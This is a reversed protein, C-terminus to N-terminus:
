KIYMASRQVGENIHQIEPEKELLRLIDALTFLCGDAYLREYIEKTMRYDEPTDLTLRLHSLDESNSINRSRFLQPHRYMYQTVHEREYADTAESESQALAAMTFVECDLGEPFSPPKNNYAFVAEGSEVVEIVRDILQPEKFPDDATIRIVVDGDTMGVSRAAAYYRNLVDDESGRFVALKQKIAWEAVRDDLKNVTTAIVV